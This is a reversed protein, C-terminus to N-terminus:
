HALVIKIEEDNHKQDKVIVTGDKATPAIHKALALALRVAAAASRTGLLQKLEDIAKEANEDLQVTLQSM